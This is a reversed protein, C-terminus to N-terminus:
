GTLKLAPPPDEGPARKTLLARYAAQKRKEMIAELSRHLLVENIATLGLHDGEFTVMLAVEEPDWRAKPRGAM